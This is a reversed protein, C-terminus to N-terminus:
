IKLMKKEIFNLVKDNKKERVHTNPNEFCMILEGVTTLEKIGYWWTIVPFTQGFTNALLSIKTNEFM